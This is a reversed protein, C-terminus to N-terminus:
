ELADEQMALMLEEEVQAVEKDLCALGAFQARITWLAEVYQTIAVVSCHRRSSAPLGPPDYTSSNCEDIEM